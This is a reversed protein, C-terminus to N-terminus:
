VDRKDITYAGSGHQRRVTDDLQQGWCLLFLKTNKKVGLLVNLSIKSVTLIVTQFPNTDPFGKSFIFSCWIHIVCSSRCFIRGTLRSWLPKVPIIASVDTGWSDANVVTYVWFGAPKGPDGGPLVDWLCRTQSEGVLCGRWTKSGQGPVCYACKMAM